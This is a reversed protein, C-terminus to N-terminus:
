YEEGSIDGWKRRLETKRPKASALSGENLIALKGKLALVDLEERSNPTACVLNTGLIHWRLNIVTTKLAKKKDRKM